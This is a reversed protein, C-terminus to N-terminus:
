KNTSDHKVELAKVRSHLERNQEWLIAIINLYKLSLMGDENKNVIDPYHKEFEQAIFGM